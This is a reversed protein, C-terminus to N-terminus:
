KNLHDFWQYLHPPTSKLPNFNVKGTVVKYDSVPVRTYSHFSDEQNSDYDISRVKTLLTHHIYGRLEASAKRKGNLPISQYARFRLLCDNFNLIGINYADSVPIHIGSQSDQNFPVLRLSNLKTLGSCYSWVYGSPDCVRVLGNIVHCLEPRRLNTSKKVHFPRVDIGNLYDGGCSERFDGAVFTKDKNTQFGMFALLSILRDSLQSEIIIDDGYVLCDESGVAVCAAKFLLTELSFTYGNGMSSFKAYEGFGFVGKYFPARLASLLNFWPTPLLSRVLELSISDSAMSLDITAHSGSVSASRALAKNAEQDRLDTGFARLRKKIYGDIGLQFPLNGTPEAAISRHTKYNKPVCVVRNSDVLRIKHKGVRFFTGTRDLVPYEDKDAAGFYKLAAVLLPLTGPTISHTYGVKNFPQSVKRAQNETAGSTLRMNSPLAELCNNLPGLVKWIYSRMSNWQERYESREPHEDYFRIRKSAIRCMKESELFREKAKALCIREDSFDANAKFLAQLQSIARYEQITAISPIVEISCIANVNRARIHGELQKVVDSSIYKSTDRLHCMALSWINLTADHM